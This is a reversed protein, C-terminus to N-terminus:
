NGGKEDTATVKYIKCLLGRNAWTGSMPDCDEDRTSTLVNTNSELCGGLDPEVVEREPFWWGRQTIIVRPAVAQTLDAKQKMRGRQTEIWVWDDEKISYEAATVPNIQFYPEHRLYRLDKIQFQESHHFPMFGNGTSLVLPYEKALEPHDIENEVPGVYEPLPSYGLDKLVSSYLEIKGSPTAFGQRQSKNYEREPFHFRYFEVFEDYTDLGYGCPELKYHYADEVTEWPWMEKQGLQIGLDKWFNYDNRREYMPQIARQSALIFDACGYVTTMTPRELAGAIPLVYDSLAATPTMWYDCTVMFEVNRLAELVMKSNGYSNVPNTASVLLARVPYPKGTLIANFVSPPHAECMWEATPAKGWVKRTNEAIKSYGPWTMLKFRDSGIQKAKQEDTLYENCEMEEETISDLSPGSLLDSGIRDLNGTVARLLARAHIAGGATRGQQDLTTGWQINGPKNTAYITAVERIQEETLWTLPAAWEPSFDAVHAALEEYGVCNEAIFADDALGEYIIVHLMALALACDSGPRLPLWLDAKAATETYRPDIVIIKLGKRQLETLHHMAPMGSAGPNQGWLIIVRSNGMDLDFPSWGCIATEIMFTPMWCLHANHFGNPSGFLNMFRRRAWDDTRATGGATAVAEAGSEDKIQTLKAAIESLAQDWSITEWKGEGKKGVRKQPYNIRAPHDIHKLAINGRCCLGGANTPFEPDGEIAIVKGDKVYALVGCNEHCFYCCSKKIEIGEQELDVNRNM